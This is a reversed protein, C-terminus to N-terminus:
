GQITYMLMLMIYFQVRKRQIEWSSQMCKEPHLISVLSLTVERGECKHPRGKQYCAYWRVGLENDIKYRIIIIM